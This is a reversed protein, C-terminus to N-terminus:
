RRVGERSARGRTDLALTHRDKWKAKVGISVLVELIRDVEQLRPMDKLVSKGKLMLCACLLAVASNKATNVKLEGKLKKGGHIVFKAM